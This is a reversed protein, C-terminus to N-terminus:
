AGQMALFLDGENFDERAVEKVFEGGYLVLIRDCIQILDDLGPSTIIVGATKTLNEQITRLISAKTAIDIGRTPEDLLFVTPDAALIRGVVVKQKNGGSLQGIEQEPSSARIDLMKMLGSVHKEEMERSLLGIRSIKDLSNLVLNERVSLVNILGEGERDEPLYMVGNAYGESPGAFSGTVKGASVVGKDFPDIGVISKLIETRGSGRLGALGIIEGRRLDFSIDKFVGAQQLDKVSLVVDGIESSTSGVLNETVEDGVILRSATRKDLEDCPVTAVSRGDRLVSVRDCISLIEDLRHSILIITNGDEKMRRILDYFLGEDKQSLSASAEDLIIIRANEAYCAKIVLMLQRESISLDGARSEVNIPINAREVIERAKAQTSQWNIINYKLFQYNPISLNEAVTYDLVVQPEQPVIAIGERKAGSRSLGKYTRGNVVIRGETPELMGSIINVLTSKGAGNKGIIGHVEGAGIDINIDHLAVTGSFIKTVNRIRLISNTEERSVQLTQKRSAQADSM